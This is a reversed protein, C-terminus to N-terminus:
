LLNIFFSAIVSWLHTFFGSAPASAVSALQLTTTATIPTKIKPNTNRAIQALSTTTATTTATTTSTTTAQTIQIASSTSITTPKSFSQLLMPWSKGLAAPIAYATAWVRTQTDSLEPEVGGDSQQLEALRDDKTFFNPMWDSPTWSLASIAQRVWSTSFSNDDPREGRLYGEARILSLSVDPLMRVQVLAQIAAATMDASGDWSGNQGQRSLIFETTKQIITDGARYGAHLLPFLAFIDDNDLSADGIQRGDFAQVIPTIYDVSTGSYPDIGLALLAMAHREYDTVSSLTPATTRMYEVLKTKADRTDAAAFALAVWDSLFPSGFSGDERQKSALYALADTVNLQSNPIGGSSAGGSSPPPPSLLSNVQLAVTTSEVNTMWDTLILSLTDGQLLPICGIGCAAMVGNNWIAWYETAGPNIGNVSQVYLGFSPDNTLTFSMLGAEKAAELMCIGLYQSPSDNQPFAHTAGGADTATCNNPVDISIPGDAYASLPTLGVFFVAVLFNFVKKM